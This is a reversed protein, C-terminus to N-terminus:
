SSLSKARATSIARSIPQRMVVAACGNSYRNYSTVYSSAERCSLGRRPISRVVNQELIAVAWRRSLKGNM